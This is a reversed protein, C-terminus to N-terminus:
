RQRRQCVHHKRVQSIRYRRQLFLHIVRDQNTSNSSLPHQQLNYHIPHYPFSPEPHSANTRKTHENLEQYPRFSSFIVLLPLAIVDNAFNNITGDRARGTFIPESSPSPLRSKVIIHITEWRSLDLLGTEWM